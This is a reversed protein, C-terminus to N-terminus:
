DRRKRKADGDRNIEDIFSDTLEGDGSLRIRRAGEDDDEDEYLEENKRKYAGRRSRERELERDVARDLQKRGPGFKNWYDSIHALLGIGWFFWAPWVGWGLIFGNVALYIAIHILLGNREENRKEIFKRVREREAQDWLEDDDLEDDTYYGWRGSPGKQWTAGRRPRSRDRDIGDKGVNEGWAEVRRGWEEAREGFEQGWRGIQEGLNEITEIFSEESKKVEVRPPASPEERVQERPLEVPQDPSKLAAELADVLAGASPYRRRPDKELARNVVAEVSPLVDPNYERLPPPTKNIHASITSYPTDAQFPVRGALLEYLVVGLSYVDAEPGIDKLGQAQEPSIYYPTGLMVDGSMTSDGSQVLRALGFDTLYPIGSPDIIINSPKIDRHLVGQDHAYDLADAVTRLIRVVERMSPERTRLMQKLTLGDIFKMVIYPQGEHENFDYVPVINPHDLRAIIRAERDFRQKFSADELLNPHMIKIAVSRDLKTHHGKYVTAMGGSGVQSDIRYIGVSDGIKLAMASGWMMM